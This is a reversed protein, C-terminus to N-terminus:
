TATPDLEYEAVSSQLEAAVAQAEAETAYEVGYADGLYEASHQLEREASGPLETTCVIRYM